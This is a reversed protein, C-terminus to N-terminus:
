FAFVSFHPLPHCSFLPPSQLQEHEILYFTWLQTHPLSTPFSLLLLFLVTVFITPYRSLSLSLSVITFYLSVSIAHVLVCFHLMMMLSIFDLLM